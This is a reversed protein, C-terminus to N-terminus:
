GAAFRSVGDAVGAGCRGGWRTRRRGRFAGPALVDQSEVDIDDLQLGLMGQAVEAALMGCQSAGPAAAPAADWGTSLSSGLLGADEADLGFLPGEEQGSSLQPLPDQEEHWSGRLSLDRALHHQDYPDDAPLMGVPSAPPSNSDPAAAWQLATADGGFYAAALGLAEELDAMAARGRAGSSASSPQPVPAPLTGMDQDQIVAGLPFPQQQQDAM